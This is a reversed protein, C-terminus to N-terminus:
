YDKKQIVVTPWSLSCVTLFSFYFYVRLTASIGMCVRMDIPLM